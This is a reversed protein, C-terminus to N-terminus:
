AAEVKLGLLTELSATTILTRKGVKRVSLEGAKIKNYITSRSLSSYDCAKAVTLTAPKVGNYASHM